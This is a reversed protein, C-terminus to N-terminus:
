QGNMTVCAQGSWVLADGTSYLGLLYDLWFGYQWVAVMVRRSAVRIDSNDM